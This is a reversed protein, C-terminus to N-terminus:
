KKGKKGSTPILKESEKEAPKLSFAQYKKSPPQTFVRIFFDISFDEADEGRNGPICYLSRELLGYGAALEAAALGLLAVYIALRLKEIVAGVVVWGLSLLRVQFALDSRSFNMFYGTHILSFGVAVASYGTVLSLVLFAASAAGLVWACTKGAVVPAKPAPLSIMPGSSKSGGAKAQLRQRMADARNTADNSKPPM